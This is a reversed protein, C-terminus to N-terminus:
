YPWNNEDSASPVEKLGSKSIFARLSQGYPEFFLDLKDQMVPSIGDDFNAKAKKRYHLATNSRAADRVLAFSKRQEAAVFGLHHLVTRLVLKPRSIYMSSRVLLFQSAGFASLWRRLHFEYMSSCLAYRESSWTWNSFNNCRGRIGAFSAPSNPHGAALENALQLVREAFGNFQMDPQFHTFMSRLHQVPERIM